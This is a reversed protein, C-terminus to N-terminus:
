KMKVEEAQLVNYDVGSQHVFAVVYCDNEKWAEDVTISFTKDLKQGTVFSEGLLVGSATTSILRRFVHKHVYDEQVGTPLLQANIVDNEILIVTLYWPESADKLPDVIVKVALSRDADSYNSELEINLQPKQELESQIHGAWSAKSVHIDGGSGGFDKRNIVASPFSQAEGFLDSIADGDATRFDVTSEDLPSSFFGAHISVAILREGHLAILNQIEASGDPCNVCQVGTFEEILVKREGEANGGGGGGNLAPIVPPNETCSIMLVLFSFFFLIKKMQEIKSILM